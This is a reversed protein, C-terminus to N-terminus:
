FAYYLGGGTLFGLFLLPPHVEVTNIGPLLM